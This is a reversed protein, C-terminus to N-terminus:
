RSSRMRSGDRHSLHASSTTQISTFQEAVRSLLTFIASVLPTTRALLATLTRGLCVNFNATVFLGTSYGIATNNSGSTNSLLSRVGTATNIKGATDHNLAEFGLATNWIGSTLNLLADTGEATNSGPYGGDPAPTVAHAKPLLMFCVLLVSALFPPITAKFLILSKM